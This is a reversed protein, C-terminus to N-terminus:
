GCSRGERPRAGPGESEEAAGELRREVSRILGSTNRWERQYRKERRTLNWWPVVVFPLVLYLPAVAYVRFTAIVLPASVALIVAQVKSSTPFRELAALDRKLQALYATYGDKTEV